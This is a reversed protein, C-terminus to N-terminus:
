LHEPLVDDADLSGVIRWRQNSVPQKKDLEFIILEDVTVPGIRKVFKQEGNKDEAYIETEQITNFNVLVQYCEFHRGSVEQNIELVGRIKLPGQQSLMRWVRKTGAADKPAANKCDYFLGQPVVEALQKFDKSALSQYYKQYLELAQEKFERQKKVSWGFVQLTQIATSLQQRLYTKWKEANKVRLAPPEVIHSLFPLKGLTDVYLHHSDTLRRGRSRIGRKSVILGGAEKNNTTSSSSTSSILSASCSSPLNSLTAYSRTTSSSSFASLSSGSSSSSSSLTALAMRTAFQQMSGLGVFGGRQLGGVSVGRSGMVTLMASLSSVGSSSM